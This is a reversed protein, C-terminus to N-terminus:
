EEDYYTVLITMDVVGVKSEEPQSIPQTKQHEVSDALGDLTDPADRKPRHVVAKELADAHEEAEVLAHDSEIEFYREIAFEISGKKPFRQRDTKRGESTYHVAVVPLDHQKPDIVKGTIVTHDADKLRDILAKIIKIPKTSM